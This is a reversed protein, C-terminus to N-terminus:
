EYGGGMIECSIKDEVLDRPPEPIAVASVDAEDLDYTVPKGKRLRARSELRIWMASNHPDKKVIQKLTALKM